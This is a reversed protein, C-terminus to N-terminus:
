KVKGEKWEWTHARTHKHVSALMSNPARDLYRAPQNVHSVCVIGFM